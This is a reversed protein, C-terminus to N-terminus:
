TGANHGRRRGEFQLAFAFEDAYDKPDSPTFKDALDPMPPLVFAIASLWLVFGGLRSGPRSPSIAATLPHRM